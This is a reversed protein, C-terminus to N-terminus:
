STNMYIYLIKFLQNPHLLNEQNTCHIIYLCNVLFLYLAISPCLLAISPCLLFATFRSEITNSFTQWLMKMAFIKWLLGTRSTYNNYPRSLAQNCFNTTAFWKIVLLDSILTMAFLLPNVTCQKWTLTWAIITLFYNYIHFNKYIAVSKKKTKLRIM